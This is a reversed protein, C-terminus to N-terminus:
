RTTRRAQAARRSLRSPTHRTPCLVQLIPHPPCCRSLHICPPRRPQAHHVRLLCRPLDARRSPRPPHRLPTRRRSPCRLRRPPRQPRLLPPQRPRLRPPRPRAPPRHLRTRPLVRPRLLRRVLRHPSELRRPPPARLRGHGHSERCRRRHPCRRRGQSCEVACRSVAGLVGRCGLGHGRRGEGGSGAGGGGGGGARGQLLVVGEDGRAGETGVGVLAADCLQELGKVGLEEGVGGRGRGRGGEGGREEGAEEGAFWFGWRRICGLAEVEVAVDAGALGHEHVEEEVGEGRGDGAFTADVKVREHDVHVFTDMGGFEGHAKDAASTACTDATPVATVWDCGDRSIEGPLGVDETKVFELDRVNCIGHDEPSEELCEGSVADDTDDGALPDSIGTGTGRRM